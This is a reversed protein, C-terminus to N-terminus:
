GSLAGPSATSAVVSACEPARAGLDAPVRGGMQLGERVVIESVPSVALEIEGRSVADLAQTGQAFLRTKDRVADAIGLEALVRAFIIGGTGGRAPDAYGISRAELLARRLAASTSVDLMPSGKRVAVGIFIVGVEARTGRG